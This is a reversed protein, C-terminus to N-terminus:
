YNKKSMSDIIPMYYKEEAERRAKIADEIYNHIGLDHYKGKLHIYARYRSGHPCVGRIGSISNKNIKRTNQLYIANTGDVATERLKDHGLQRGEAM